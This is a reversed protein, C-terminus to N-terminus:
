FWCRCLSNFFGFALPLDFMTHRVTLRWACSHVPLVTRVVFRTLSVPQRRHDSRTMESRAFRRLVLCVPM